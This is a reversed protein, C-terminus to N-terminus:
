QTGAGSGDGETPPAITKDTQDARESMEANVNAENAREEDGLSTYIDAAERNKEASEKPSDTHLAENQLSEAKEQQSPAPTSSPQTDNTPEHTLKLIFITAIATVIVMLPAVILLMIKKKNV